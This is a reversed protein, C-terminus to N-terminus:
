ITEIGSSSAQQLGTDRCGDPQHRTRSASFAIIGLAHQTRLGAIHQNTRRTIVFAGFYGCGVHLGTFWRDDGPCHIRGGLHQPVSGPEILNKQQSKIWGAQSWLRLRMCRFSQNCIGRYARM